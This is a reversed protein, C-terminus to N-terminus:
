QAVGKSRCSFCYTSYNRITIKCCFYSLIGLSVVTNLSRSSHDTSKTLGSLIGQLSGMLLGCSAGYPGNSLRSALGWLM